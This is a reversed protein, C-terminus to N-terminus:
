QPAQAKPDRRFPGTLVRTPTATNRLTPTITPTLTITPTSTVTPTGSRTQTPQPTPPLPCGDLTNNVAVAIQDATITGDQRGDGARCESLAATGLAINVLTLLEVITM